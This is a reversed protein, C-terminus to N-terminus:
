LPHWHWQLQCLCWLSHNPCSTDKIKTLVFLTSMFGTVLGLMMSVATWVRRRYDFIAESVKPVETTVPRAVDQKIRVIRECFDNKIKSSIFSSDMVEKVLEDAIVSPGYADKEDVGYRRATSIILSMIISVSPIMGESIGHRLTYLVERNVSAVRQMYERNDRKQFLYRSFITVLFGSLVGGGIGIVWPNDLWYM